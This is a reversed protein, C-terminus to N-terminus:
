HQRPKKRQKTKKQSSKHSDGPDQEDGSDDENGQRQSQRTPMRKQSPNRMNSVRADQEEDDSDDENDQRQSQRTPAGRKQSSNRTNTVRSDPEEDDSDDESDQRQSQRTLAGMKQSSNRMNSVRSDPEEDDEIRRKRSKQVHALTDNSRNDGSHPNRRTPPTDSAGEDDSAPLPSM